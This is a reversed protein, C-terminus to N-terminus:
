RPARSGRAGGRDAGHQSPGALRPPDRQLRPTALLVTAVVGLTTGTLGALQLIVLVVLGGVALQPASERIVVRTFWRGVRFLLAPPAAPRIKILRVQEKLASRIFGPPRSHEPETM